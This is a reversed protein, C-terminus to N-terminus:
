KEPQKPYPLFQSRMKKELRKDLFYLYKHKDGGRVAIADKDVNERLWKEQNKWGRHLVARYHMRKGNVIFELAGRRSGVYKWNTAQYIVGLHGQNQDAFSVIVRTKPADNKVLKLSASVAESTFKQRGNLAVRVLEIIEGQFLGYMEKSTAKRLKM